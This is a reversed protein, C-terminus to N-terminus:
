RIVLSEKTYPYKRLAGWQTSCLYWDAKQSSFHIPYTQDELNRIMQEAGSLQIIDGNSCSLTMETCYGGWFLGGGDGYCWEHWSEGPALSVNIFGGETRLSIDYTLTTENIITEEWCSLYDVIPTEIRYSPMAQAHNTTKAIEIRLPVNRCIGDIAISKQPNGVVSVNEFSSEEENFFCKGSLDSLNFEKPLGGASLFDVSLKIYYDSPAATTIFRYYLSLNYIGDKEIISLTAESPRLDNM